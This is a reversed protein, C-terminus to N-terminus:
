GAYYVEIGNEIFVKGLNQGKIIKDWSEPVDQHTSQRKGIGAIIDAAFLLPAQQETKRSIDRIRVGRQAFKDKLIKEFLSFERNPM